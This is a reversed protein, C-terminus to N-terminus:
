LYKSIAPVEVGFLQAISKQTLWFSENYFTVNINVNNSETQYFIIQQEM